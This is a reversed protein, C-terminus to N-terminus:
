EGFINLEVADLAMQDGDRANVGHVRIGLVIRSLGSTIEFPQSQFSEWPSNGPKFDGCALVTGTHPLEALTKVEGGYTLRDDAAEKTYGWVVWSLHNPATGAVETSRYDFGFTYAGRDPAALTQYCNTGQWMGGTVLYPARAEDTALKFRDGFLPIYWLDLESSQVTFEDWKAPKKIDKSFNGNELLASSPSAIATIILDQTVADLSHDWGDFAWGYDARINPAEAKRGEVVQQILAGGGVAKLTEPLAFRVTCIKRYHATVSAAELPVWFLTEKSEPRDLIGGTSTWNYFQKGDKSAPASLEIGRGSPYTGSGDANEITIEVTEPTLARIAFRNDGAQVAYSSGNVALTFPATSSVTVTGKGDYLLDATISGFKFNRLGHPSQQHLRWAVRKQLADVAHFGLVNEIFMSIPGLASWGCFDPRVIHGNLRVVPHDRSPSYCEWITNPEVERYTRYMHALLNEAATDAEAQYGYKELAKTGMYATPLWIGGRWYAGDEGYYTPDNRAVTM